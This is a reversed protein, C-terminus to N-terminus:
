HLNQGASKAIMRIRRELFGFFGIRQLLPNLWGTTICFYKNYPEQHHMRHHGPSLIVRYRQLWQIVKPPAPTTMHSWKHLQNTAFVWIILSGLFASAFLLTVHGENLPILLTGVQIPISVLCNAGNIEVFDHRTISTQDVHHERFPRIFAKGVVPWDPTGWTDGM